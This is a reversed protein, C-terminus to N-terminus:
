MVKKIKGCLRCKKTCMEELSRSTQFKGQPLVGNWGDSSLSASSESNGGNDWLTTWLSIRWLYSFITTPPHWILAIPPTYLVEWGMKAIAESTLCAAHPRANDHLIIINREPRKSARTGMKLINWGDEFVARVWACVEMLVSFDRTFKHLLSKRKWLFNSSLMSVFHCIMTLWKTLLSVPWTICAISWLVSLSLVVAPEM